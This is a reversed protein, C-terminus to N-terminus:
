LLVRTYRVFPRPPPPPGFRSMTTLFNLLQDLDVPESPPFRSFTQLQDCDRRISASKADERMEQKEQDSLM